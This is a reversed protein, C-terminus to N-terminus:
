EELKYVYWFHTREIWHNFNFHNFWDPLSRYILKRNMKLGEINPNTRTVILSTRGPLIKVQAISDVREIRLNKRKYFHIDLARRYPDEKIFYLTTPGPYDRYITQFLRNENDVPTVIIILLMILNAWWFIKVTYKVAKSGLLGPMWKQRVLDITQIIIIPLFGLIPFIFRMEKHGIMFHILLFPFLTWTLIDKRRFIFFLLVTAIYVLSFPPIGEWFTSTVYFYWPQIGFGSVKDLLLNQRFYNWATVTWEGYFWRDLLLGLAFVLIIGSALIVMRLFTERKIIFLWLGLGLILLGTQYRFLFSLGLLLGTMFYEQWIFQPKKNQLYAFAILFVSGSWTESTFRIGTFFLFWLFFSLFLFWKQLINNEIKKEYVHYVMWMGLFSIGATLLRLIFAVFFPDPTGFLSFFRYVLVVILPQIVPRMQNHFEWPLNVKETLHLKLGAFEIIQFHEDPHLYGVSFFAAVVLTLGSLFYVKRRDMYHLFSVFIFPNM